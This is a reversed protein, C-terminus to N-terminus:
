TSCLVYIAIVFFCRLSVGEMDKNAFLGLGQLCVFSLILFRSM